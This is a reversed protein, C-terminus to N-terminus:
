ARHIMMGQQMVTYVFRKLDMMSTHNVIKTIVGREQQMVRQDRKKLMQRFRGCPKKLAYVYVNGM